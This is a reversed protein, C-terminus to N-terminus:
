PVPNPAPAVPAPEVIPDPAPAVAPEPAPVIPEPVPVIPEAIPDPTPAVPEAVPEPLPTIPAVPEPAPTILEPAPKTPTPAVPEIAPEVVPESKRAEQEQIARQRAIADQESQRRQRREDQERQFDSGEQQSTVRINSTTDSESTEYRRNKMAELAKRDLEQDGSSTVLVPNVKGDKDIEQRIRLSGESGLYKDLGCNEICKRAEKKQIPQTKPEQKPVSPLVSSVPIPKTPFTPTSPSGPTGPRMGNSNSGSGNQNGRGNGSGGSTGAGAAANPNLKGGNPDGKIGKGGKEGNLQGPNTTTPTFPTKQTSKEDTKSVNSTSKEKKEVSKEPRTKKEPEIADEPTSEVPMTAIEPQIQPLTESSTATFPNGLAAINNGDTTGGNIQSISFRSSGGGGGALDGSQGNPNVQSLDLKPEIKEDAVIEVEDQAPDTAIHRSINTFGVIAGLHLVLAIPFTLKFLKQQQKVEQQRYHLASQVPTESIISMQM